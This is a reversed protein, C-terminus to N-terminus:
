RLRDLALNLALVNVVPEGLIDPVPRETHRAILQEVTATPLGRARAVRAAQYGAAAPSIHPDLGSGSATALDVPIPAPNGPDAARLAAIRARVAQALAPNAPGLNSGGSAAANYPMPATASPRGWFYRPDTFSQGILASGVVRGDQELLSGGAQFPWLLRAVGTTALPYLLGLLVSLALFIVLAARLPRGAPPLPPHM